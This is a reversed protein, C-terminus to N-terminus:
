SRREYRCALRERTTNLDNRWGPLRLVEILIDVGLFERILTALRDKCQQMTSRSVKFAVAVDSVTKGELLYAIIARERQSLRTLLTQWDLKRAAIMSPDEQDQSLVDTFTFIEGGAEEDAAAPEDLSHLRTNGNLQTGSAM